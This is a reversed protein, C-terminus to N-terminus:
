VVVSFSSASLLCFSFLDVPHLPRSLSKKESSQKWRRTEERVQHPEWCNDHCIKARRGHWWLEKKVRDVVRRRRESMAGIFLVDATKPVPPGPHEYVPSYGLPVHLSTLGLDERLLRINHLSNPFIFSCFIVRICGINSTYFTIPLPWAWTRAYCAGRPHQAPQLPFSALASSPLFLDLSGFSTRAAQLLFRPPLSRM